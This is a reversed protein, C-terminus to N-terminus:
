KLLLKIQGKLDSDFFFFIGKDTTKEAKKKLKIFTKKKLKFNQCINVFKHKNPHNVTKFELNDHGFISLQGSAEYNKKLISNKTIIPM